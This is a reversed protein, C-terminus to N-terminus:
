EHISEKKSKKQAQDCIRKWEDIFGSVDEETTRYGLSVRIAHRAEHEIVGMAQLVQSTQVKGSSCASGVSIAIGALDFSMLQLQSEANPMSICITNAVRPAEKGHIIGPPSLEAEIRERLSSLKSYEELHDIAENFAVDMGFILPAPVTGSRMGFEQGGGCIIPNLQLDERLVLAGCGMPGGFKHSSFSLMDVGLDQFSVPIKGVAQAADTHVLHGHSKAIRVVEKLPQIVGTENNVLMVSVLSRVPAQSLTRDLVELDILGQSDVPIVHATPQAKRVASHEIASIFVSDTLGRLALNISETAGSTFIIRTGRADLKSQIVRRAHDVYSRAQRGYSHASSPNGVHGYAELLADKAADRLPCTANYDLYITM